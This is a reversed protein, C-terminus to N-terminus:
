CLLILQLNLAQMCYLIICYLVIPTIQEKYFLWFMLTLESISKSTM